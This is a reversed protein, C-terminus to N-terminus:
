ILLIVLLGAGQKQIRILLVEEAIILLGATDSM